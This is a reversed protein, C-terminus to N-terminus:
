KRGSDAVGPLHIGHGMPFDSRGDHSQWVIRKPRPDLIFFPVTGGANCVFVTGDDLAQVGAFWRIGLTPFEAADLSWAPKGDRDYGAMGQKGCILTGGDALRIASYVPFPAPFERVLAGDAAYERAAKASEEAVLFGGGELARVNRMCSHGPANKVRIERVVEGAPSVVLLKGQSAAGVLTAGDAMRQCSFVQGTTAFLFVVRGDPAVERVGSPNDNSKSNYNENFPFLVNGNPLVWVDRAMPAPCEWAVRGDAGFRLIKACGEATYVFGQPPPHALAPGAADARAALLSLTAVLVARIHNM